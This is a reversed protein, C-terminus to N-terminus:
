HEKDPEEDSPLKEIKDIVFDVVRLILGILAILVQWVEVKM